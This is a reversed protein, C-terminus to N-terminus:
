YAIGMGRPLHPPIQGERWAGILHSTAGFHLLCTAKYVGRPINRRRRKRLFVAHLDVNHLSHVSETLDSSDMMSDTIFINESSPFVASTVPPVLPMPWDIASAKASAPASM